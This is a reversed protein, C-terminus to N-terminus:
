HWIRTTNLIEQNVIFAEAFAREEDIEFHEDSRSAEIREAHLHGPRPELADLGPQVNRLWLLAGIALIALMVIVGVIQYLDM